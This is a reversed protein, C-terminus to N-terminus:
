MDKLAPDTGTESKLSNLEDNIGTLEDTDDIFAIVADKIDFEPTPLNSLENVPDTKV